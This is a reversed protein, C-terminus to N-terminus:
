EDDEAEKFETYKDESMHMYFVSKNIVNLTDLLDGDFGVMKALFQCPVVAGLATFFLHTREEGEFPEIYNEGEPDEFLGEQLVAIMKRAYDEVLLIREEKTM